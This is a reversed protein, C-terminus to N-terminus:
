LLFNDYQVAVLTLGQSPATIGAITRDRSELVEKAWIPEKLGAGIPLLVGIINRVMHHLFANATINMKVFQGDRTLTLAIITRTATKAQCQSDRFASFDHMGILYQAALNMLEHNLPLRHWTTNHAYLASRIPANYIVYEYSRSQASFRAHFDKPVIKAWKVVIDAPLMTNTGRVWNDLPRDVPSDFHVVQGLAHVGVDTRGACTVNIPSDAIKSLARELQGEVTNQNPQIQWGHYGSGDYEIGLAIRQNM